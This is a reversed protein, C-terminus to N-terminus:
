VVQDDEIQDLPTSNLQCEVKRLFITKEIPQPPPPDDQVNIEDLNNLTEQPLNQSEFFKRLQLRAEDTVLQQRLAETNLESCSANSSASTSPM